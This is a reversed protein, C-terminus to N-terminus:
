VPTTRRRLPLGEATVAYFAPNLVMLALAVVPSVLGIVAPVFPAAIGAVARAYEGRFFGTPVDPALLEPHRHLHRFTLLWTAGMASSVGAYLLLAAVQDSHTGEGMAFALEATPFPLVSATLLLALNCWLLGGDVAAIRTFLAHHNVWVVGIYLFSAVYALYSPWQEGLQHAVRGPEATTHLDLVLLTIAIALVGDSFAELRGTGASRRQRASETTRTMDKELARQARCPLGHWPQGYWPEGHEPFTLWVVAVPSSASAYGAAQRGASGTAARWGDPHEASLQERHRSM